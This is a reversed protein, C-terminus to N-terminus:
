ARKLVTMLWQCEELKQIVFLVITRYQMLSTIVFRSSILRSCGAARMSYSHEVGASSSSSDRRRLRRGRGLLYEKTKMQFYIGNTTPQQFCLPGEKRSGEMTSLQMFKYISLNGIHLIYEIGTDCACSPSCYVCLKVPRKRACQDRQPALATKRGM